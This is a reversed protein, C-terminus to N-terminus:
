RNTYAVLLISQGLKALLRFYLIDILRFAGFLCLECYVTCLVCYVTSLVCRILGVITTSKGSGPMGRILSYNETMMCRYLLFIIPYFLFSVILWRKPDQIRVLFFHIRIWTMFMEKYNVSKKPQYIAGQIRIRPDAYKGSLLVAM